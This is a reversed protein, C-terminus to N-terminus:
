NASSHHNAAQSATTETFLKHQNLLTIPLPTPSQLTYSQLTVGPQNIQLHRPPQGSVELTCEGLREETIIWIRLQYGKGTRRTRSYIATPAYARKIREYSIPTPTELDKIISGSHWVTCGAAGLDWRRRTELIQTARWHAALLQRTTGGSKLIKEFPIQEGFLQQWKKTVDAEPADDQDPASPDPEPPEKKVASQQPDDRSRILQDIEDFLQARDQPIKASFESFFFPKFPKAVAAKDFTRGIYDALHALPSPHNRPTRVYRHYDAIDDDLIESSPGEPWGWVARGEAGSNAILLTTPDWSRAASLMKKLLATGVSEPIGVFENSCAIICTSPHPSLDWLFSQFQKFTWDPSMKNLDHAWHLPFDSYLCLGLRDAATYFEEPMVFHPIRVLNCNAAKLIKVFQECRASVQESIIPYYANPNDPSPQKPSTAFPFTRFFRYDALGRFFIPKGNLLIRRNEITLNKFGVTRRLTDIRLQSMHTIIRGNQETRSWDTIAAFARYTLPRDPSWLELSGLPVDISLRTAPAKLAIKMRASIPRSRSGEPPTLDATLELASPPANPAAAIEFEFQLHNEDPFPRTSFRHIFIDGIILEVPRWIGAFNHGWAVTDVGQLTTKPIDGHWGRYAEPQEWPNTIKLSLTHESELKGLDFYFPEFYGEHSGLPQGDWFVECSYDVGGFRIFAHRGVHEPPIQITKSYFFTESKKLGTDWVGPVHLKRYEPSSEPRVNWEGSLDLRVTPEIPM